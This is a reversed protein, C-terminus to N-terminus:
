VTVPTCFHDKCLHHKLTLFELAAVSLRMKQANHSPHCGCHINNTPGSKEAGQLYELQEKPYSSFIVCTPREKCLARFDIKSTDQYQWGCSYSSIMIGKATLTHHPTKPVAQLGVCKPFVRKSVKYSFLWLPGSLGRKRLWVGRSIM